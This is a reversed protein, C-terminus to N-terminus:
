KKGKITIFLSPFPASGKESFKLRGEIFTIKANDPFHRLLKHFWKTDTRAPVLFVVEEYNNKELIAKDVWKIINSYPPNIFLKGNWEIELGDFNSHLPCPDFYNKNMFKEYIHKPTEWHDSNKSFMVSINKM